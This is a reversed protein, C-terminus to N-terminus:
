FQEKKLVMELKNIFEKFSIPEYEDDGKMFQFIMVALEYIDDDTICDFLLDILM